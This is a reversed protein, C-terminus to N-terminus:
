SAANELRTDLSAVLDPAVLGAMDKNQAWEGRIGPIREIIRMLYEVEAGSEYAANSQQGNLYSATAALFLEDCLFQFQIREAETLPGGFSAKASINALDSNELLARRWRSFLEQAAMTGGVAAALRSQRTENALYALTVVIAVAGVIESVSSIASWDM